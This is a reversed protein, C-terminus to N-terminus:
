QFRERQTDRAATWAVIYQRDPLGAPSGVLETDARVGGVAARADAEAAAVSRQGVEVVAVALPTAAPESVLAVGIERCTAVALDLAPLVLGERGVAVMRGDADERIEIEAPFLPGFGSDWLKGRVADKLVVRALLWQRRERPPCSEYEAREASGLYKRLYFERSALTPWREAAVWWGREHRDSLASTEPFRHVASTKPDSDFRHDTWGTISVLTQDGSSVQLDARLEREDIAAIRIASEVATGATPPAAHFRIRAISVPFAIWRQPHCEVLWHGIVHGANDLLAGPASPVTIEARAAHPAVGVTRTVGQYAPGHFLWREEYLRAATVTPQREDAPEEWVPPGSPYDDAFVVIGDAYDGLRVQVRDRDIRRVRVPVRQEPAAVLWRHLRVDDVGVAVRDTILDQAFRMLHWVVTTAPVVPRLDSEDRWGPRQHAFCHDLLYPMESTSVVLETTAGPPTSSALVAPGRAAAASGLGRPRGVAPPATRPAAPTPRSGAPGAGSATPTATPRAAVPDPAAVSRHAVTSNHGSAVPAAQAAALVAAVSEATERVLAALEPLAPFRGALAALQDLAGVPTPEPRAAPASRRPRAGGPAPAVPAPSRPAPAPTPPASVGPLQGAPAEPAPHWPEPAPSATRAAPATTGQAMIGPLPSGESAAATSDAPAPAEPAPAEPTAAQGAVTVAEAPDLATFDPAAGETWLALAARRLQLMGTSRGANAAVTLHDHERLTDDILSGLQGPGAQVFARVGSDHLAMALARFRVPELLHRVCLERAAGEDVPFPSATTASWVPVAPPHLRLSPVGSERFPALYPALMPTHFGSRFPMVQCIVAKARLDDVVGKVAEAPGCVVTQNTSNEHSVVVGAVGDVAEAARDAPCGLVAFEVGPVRLADLDIRTLMEEFDAAAFMGGAIMATWEGVSHGAVIAPTIALKRLAADMLRGVNIVAAGHRGLTEVSLDPVPVGLWQAVDAVAPDFEAELGPFLFAISTGPAGLLPDPSFWLDKRGRWARGKGVVRRALDIREPTPDLLALRPGPVRAPAAALLDELPRALLETLAAPSAAGLLLQRVGPSRAM